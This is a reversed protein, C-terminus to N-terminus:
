TEIVGQQPTEAPGVTATEGLPANAPWLISHVRSMSYGGIIVRDPTDSGLLLLRGGQSGTYFGVFGNNPDSGRNLVVIAGYSLREIKQMSPANVFSKAKGTLGEISQDSKKLVWAVFAGGWVSEDGEGKGVTKLYELIKPNFQGDKIEKTGIENRALELWAPQEETPTFDGPAGYGDDHIINTEPDVGQTVTGDGLTNITGMVMPTQQDSGDLWIGFCLTGEMIGVPSNGVGSLSASTSPMLPIAWPLLLTPILEQSQTHHGFIRVRVRGLQLPDSRDEVVGLWFQNNLGFSEPLYQRM